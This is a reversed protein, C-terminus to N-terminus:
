FIDFLMDNKYHLVLNVAIYNKLREGDNLVAKTAARIMIFLFYLSYHMNSNLSLVGHQIERFPVYKIAFLFLSLTGPITSFFGLTSVFLERFTCGLWRLYERYCGKHKLKVNDM